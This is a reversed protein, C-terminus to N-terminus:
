LWGAIDNGVWESLTTVGVGAEPPFHKTNGTIIPCSLHRALAIFMLDDPDPLQPLLVARPEAWLGEAHLRDLFEAVIEPGLKFKPRCLVERYEDVVDFSCAVVVRGARVAQLLRAANGRPTLFASVWVNTDVVALM